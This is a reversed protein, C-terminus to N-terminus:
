SSLQHVSPVLHRAYHRVSQTNFLEGNTVRYPTGVVDFGALDM